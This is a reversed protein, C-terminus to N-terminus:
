SQLEKKAENFLEDSRKIVRESVQQETIGELKAVVKCYDELIAKSLSHGTLFKSLHKAIKEESTMTNNTQEFIITRITQTREALDSQFHNGLTPTQLYLPTRDNRRKTGPPCM